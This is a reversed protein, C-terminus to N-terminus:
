TVLIERGLVWIHPQLPLIYHPIHHLHHLRLVINPHDASEQEMLIPM